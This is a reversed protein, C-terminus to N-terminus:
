KKNLSELKKKIDEQAPDIELSKQWQEKAQEALGKRLYADGLHNIIVPDDLLRRADELQKIAEDIKGKKFYIWGLTDVYAGNGSDIELAKKIMAEAEDLKIGEEAYLYALSNLAELYDPRLRLAEKFEAITEKIKKQEYYITGLYFHAEPDQASLNLIKKYADIAEELKRQQLYVEGLGKYIEINEPDEKQAIVLAAEYEKSALADDGKYSYVLALILHSEVSAPNIKVSLNLEEVAKNIYDGSKKKIYEVALRTHLVACDPDLRLAQRYEEIAKDTDGSRSNVSGMIYHSLADSAKRKELEM